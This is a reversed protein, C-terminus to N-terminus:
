VTVNNKYTVTLSSNFNGYLRHTSNEEGNVTSYSESTSGNGSVNWNINWTKNQVIRKNIGAYGFWRATGPAEYYTRTNESSSVDYSTNSGISSDYVTYNI